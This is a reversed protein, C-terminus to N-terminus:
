SLTDHETKSLVSLAHATSEEDLGINEVNMEDFRFHIAPPDNVDTIFTIEVAPLKFEIEGDKVMRKLEEIPFVGQAQLRIM